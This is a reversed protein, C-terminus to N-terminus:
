ITMVLLRKFDDNYKEIAQEQTIKSFPVGIDCILIIEFILDWNLELNVVINETNMFVIHNKNYRIIISDNKLHSTTYESILSSFWEIDISEYIEDFMNMDRTNVYRGM